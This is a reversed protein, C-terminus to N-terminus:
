RGVNGVFAYFARASRSYKKFNHKLVECDVAKHRFKFQSAGIYLETWSWLDIAVIAAERYKPWGYWRKPQPSAAQLTFFCSAQLTFSPNPKILSDNSDSLAWAGPYHQSSIVQMSEFRPGPLYVQDPRDEFATIQANLVRRVLVYYLFITKGVGPQGTLVAGGHGRECLETLHSLTELYEKLMTDNGAFFSEFGPGLDLFEYETMAETPSASSGPMPEDLDPVTISGRKYIAKWGEDGKGWYRRHLLEFNGADAM